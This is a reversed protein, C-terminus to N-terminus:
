TNVLLLFNEVPLVTELYKKIADNVEMVLRNNTNSYKYELSLYFFSILMNFSSDLGQQQPASEATVFKNSCYTM